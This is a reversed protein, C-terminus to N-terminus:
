VHPLKVTFTTGKGMESSVNIEGHHRQVIAKAIALGLGFGKPRTRSSDIRYFRDFIKELHQKPIGIGSDRVVATLYKNGDRITIWIDGKEPTYNIANDVLNFFLQSLLIEQGNFPINEPPPTYHLRIQRQKIKPSLKALVANIIDPLDLPSTTLYHSNQQMRALILLNEVLATLRGVEERSSHITKQYDAVSRTKQLLVDLEGAIISLPTRLEHSADAVFQKQQNYMLEIPQLSKKALWWSLPPIILFFIGNVAILVNRLQNLAVDGSVAAIKTTQDEFEGQNNGQKAQQVQKVQSIYSEGFSNEMWFYIGVSFIWFLLFFLVSYIITLQFQTKRFM